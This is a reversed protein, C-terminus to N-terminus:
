SGIHLGKDNASKSSTWQCQGVTLKVAGNKHKGTSLNASLLFSKREILFYWKSWDRSLSDRFLQWVEFTFANKHGLYIGAAPFLHGAPIKECGEDPSRLCIWNATRADRGAAVHSFWDSKSFMRLHWSDRTGVRRCGPLFVPPFGPFYAGWMRASKNIKITLAIDSPQATHSTPFQTLHWRLFLVVQHPVILVISPYRQMRLLREMM